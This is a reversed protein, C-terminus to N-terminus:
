SRTSRLLEGREPDEHYEGRELASVFGELWAALSPTIPPKRDEGLWFGCVPEEPKSTDICLYDGDDDDLFPIWSRQWGGKASAGTNDDDREKKAEAIAATGMLKWSQEFSGTVEPKQGNHWSLLARLGAPVPLDIHAQLMDLDAASAGPQLAHLFRPRHHELWRDLRSLLAGYDAPPPASAPRNDHVSVDGAPKSRVTTPSTKLRNVAESVQEATPVHRDSAGQDTLVCILNPWTLEWPPKRSGVPRVAIGQESLTLALREGACEIERTIPRTFKQV